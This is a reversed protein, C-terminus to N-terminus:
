VISMLGFALCRVDFASRRIPVARFETKLTPREVNSTQKRRLGPLTGPLPSSGRHIAGGSGLDPADALKAVRAVRNRITFKRPAIAFSAPEGFRDASQRRDTSRSFKGTVGRPSRVRRSRF